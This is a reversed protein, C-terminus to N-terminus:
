ELREIETNNVLLTTLKLFRHMCGHCVFWLRSVISCRSDLVSVFGWGGKTFERGAITFDCHQSLFVQMYPVEDVIAAVGGGEPGQKLAKEYEAMTSLPVLREKAINISILYDKVYSGTQYGVPVNSAQLSTIGQIAPILKQVTLISTLNATYSSTIILVVFLWIIIVLKGCTSRTKERQAFFLTSFTFWLVTVVQKKPRGRFDKNWKHELMWIVLGTFIFFALTVFWMRATFPQLFAWPNSSHVNKLPVVVVLGSETYPQSFDVKEMRKTTITVDGVVADYVKDVLQEIMDDYVPTNNQGFSVFTYPVSYPLYKLARQFVDICFGNFSNSPNGSWSVFQKFGAKNPVAIKLARGNKPLVWGRPRETINGPWIVQFATHPADVSVLPESSASAPSGPSSLSLQTENSWYGVVRLEQGVINVIEFGSRILDGKSNVQIFGSTGQFKTQLLQARLPQGSGFVKLRALESTNGLNNQSFAVNEFTINFGKQLYSDLAYALFWVADYAYLGYLHLELNGLSQNKWESLFSKLQLSNKQYYGRTGIAGQVAGFANDDITTASLTGALADSIIWVYGASIMGFYKAEAFLRLALNQPMHVVFIRTQMANLESLISGIVLQNVDPVFAAKQVIRAGVGVLADSLAAAGNTGFDDDTFLAVVERWGYFGILSAIAEMQVADTHAIRFIYPYQFESLAPDTAGYSVFPVQTAVGVHGVFHSVSSSQPGIVAVVDKKLLEVAEVAGQFASCNTDLMHLVLRSNPLVSNNKNIDAVAMEIAQKAVRGILSDYAVLAGINVISAIQASGLQCLFSSVLVLSLAHAYYVSAFSEAVM